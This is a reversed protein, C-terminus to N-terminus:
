LDCVNLNTFFLCCMFLAMLIFTIISFLLFLCLLVTSFVQNKQLKATPKM